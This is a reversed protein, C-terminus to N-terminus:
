DISDEVFDMIDGVSTFTTKPPLTLQLEKELFIMLDSVELDTANLDSLLTERLLNEKDTGLHNSILKLVRKPHVTAKGLAGNVFRPSSETGYQKALEVAEDIIAKSPEEAEFILEFIALRLIALDIQNIKNIEWEPACAVVIEDIEAASRIIQKTKEDWDKRDLVKDAINETKIQNQEQWAFLEQIIKERKQHRPDLVTKM